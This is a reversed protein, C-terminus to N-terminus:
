LFLSEILDVCGLCLVVVPRGGLGILWVFWSRWMLIDGDMYQCQTQPEYKNVLAGGKTSSGLRFAVLM